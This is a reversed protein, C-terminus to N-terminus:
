LGIAGQDLCRDLVLQAHEVPQLGLIARRWADRPCELTQRCHESQRANGAATVIGRMSERRSSTEMVLDGRIPMANVKAHRPMRPAIGIREFARGAPNSPRVKATQSVIQCSIAARGSNRTSSGPCHRRVSGPTARAFGRLRVMAMPRSVPAM